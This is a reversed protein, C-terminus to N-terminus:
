KVNSLMVNIDKTKDMTIYDGKPIKIFSIWGPFVEKILQLHEKVEDPAALSNCSHTIKEVALDVPVASKREAIFYLWLIHVIKPVREMMAARKEDEVSRTMTEMLKASEKVRIMEILDASIGKLAPNQKKDPNTTTLTVEKNSPSTRSESVEKLAKEITGKFKGKIKNLVDKATCTKVEPLEPLASEPIDPVSALPFKQHWRLIKEDSVLPFNIQTLFKRHHKKVEKLINEKFMARREALHQPTIHIFVTGKSSSSKGPSGSINASIILQYDPGDKTKNIIYADAKEYHMVYASPLVTVIQALHSKTFNRGIMKQVGEKVKEFTIKEKRNNLMSVVVDMCQFAECLLNYKYPLILDSSEPAALHSFKQYAPEKKPGSTKAEIPTSTVPSIVSTIKFSNSQYKEAANKVREFKAHIKKLEDLRNSGLIKSRCEDNIDALKESKTDAEDTTVSLNNKPTAETENKSTTIFNTLKNSKPLALKKRAAPQKKSTKLGSKSDTKKNTKDNKEIVPRKKSPTLEDANSLNRKPTRPTEFTESTTSPQEVKENKKSTIKLSNEEKDNDVPLHQVKSAKVNTPKTSTLKKSTTKKLADSIIEKEIKKVSKKSNQVNKKATYFQTVVTQAM